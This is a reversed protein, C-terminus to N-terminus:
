IEGHRGRGIRVNMKQVVSQELTVEPGDHVDDNDAHAGTSEGDDAVVLTWGASRVNAPRPSELDRRADPLDLRHRRKPPSGSDTAVEHQWRYSIWRVSRAPARSM